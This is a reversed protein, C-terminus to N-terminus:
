SIAGIVRGHEYKAAEEEHSISFTRDLRQRSLLRRYLLKAGLCVSLCCGLSEGLKSSSAELLKQSFFHQRLTCVFRMMIM